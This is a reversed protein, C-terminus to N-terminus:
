PKVEGGPRPIEPAILPQLNGFIAVHAPGLALTKLVLLDLTGQLLNVHRRGLSMLAVALEAYGERDRGDEPEGVHHVQGAHRRREPAPDGLALQMVTSTTPALGHPCAEEVRPLYQRSAPLTNASRRATPKPAPLSDNCPPLPLSEIEPPPPLSMM